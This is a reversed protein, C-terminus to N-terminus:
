HSREFYLAMKLEDYSLELTKSVDESSDRLRNMQKKNLKLARKLLKERSPLM